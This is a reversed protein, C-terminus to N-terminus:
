EGKEKEKKTQKKPQEKLKFGHERILRDRKEADDTIRTVGDKELTFM